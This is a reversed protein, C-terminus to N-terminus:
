DPMSRRLRSKETARGLKFNGKRNRTCYHVFGLFSFTKPRQGTTCAERQAGRGFKILKTKSPELALAFKNLRKSLVAQVREPDERYQFCM